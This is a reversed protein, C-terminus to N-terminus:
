PCVSGGGSPVSANYSKVWSGSIRYRSQNRRGYVGFDYTTHQPASSHRLTAKVIGEDKNLIRSQVPFGNRYLLASVSGAGQSEAMRVTVRARMQCKSRYNHYVARNIAPDIIFDVIRDTQFELFVEDALTLELQVILPDPQNQFDALPLPPVSVNQAAMAYLLKEADPTTVGSQAIYDIEILLSEPMALLADLSNAAFEDLEDPKAPSAQDAFFADACMLMNDTYQRVSMEDAGSVIISFLEGQENIFNGPRVFKGERFVVENTFIPKQTAEADPPCLEHTIEPFSGISEAVQPDPTWDPCLEPLPENCPTPSPKDPPANQDLSSLSVKSPQKTPPRSSFLGCFFLAVLLATVIIVAVVLPRKM